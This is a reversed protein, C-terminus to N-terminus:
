PAPRIFDLLDLHLMTFGDLCVMTDIAKDPAPAKVLSLRSKGDRVRGAARPPTATERSGPLDGATPAVAEPWADVADRAPAPAAAGM